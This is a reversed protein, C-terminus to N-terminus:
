PDSGLGPKYIFELESGCRRMLLGQGDIEIEFETAGETKKYKESPYEESRKWDNIHLNIFKRFGEVGDHFQQACGKTNLETWLSDIRWEATSTRIILVM